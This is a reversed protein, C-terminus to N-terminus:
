SPRCEVTAVPPILGAIHTLQSVTGFYTLFYGTNLTPLIFTFASANLNLIPLFFAPNVHTTFGAKHKNINHCKWCQM